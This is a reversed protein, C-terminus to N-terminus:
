LLMCLWLLLLQLRPSFQLLLLLLLPLLHDHLAQLPLLLSQFFFLWVLLLLLGHLPSKAPLLQELRNLCLTDHPGNM